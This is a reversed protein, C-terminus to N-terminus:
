PTAILAAIFMEYLNVARSPDRSVLAAVQEMVTQLHGVFGWSARYSVFEGLGLSGEIAAFLSDREKRQPM